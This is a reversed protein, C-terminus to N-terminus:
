ELPASVSLHGILECSSFLPSVAQGEGRVNPLWGTVCVTSAREWQISAFRRLVASDVAALLDPVDHWPDRLFERIFDGMKNVKGNAAMKINGAM